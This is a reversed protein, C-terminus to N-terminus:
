TSRATRQTEAFAQAVRLGSVVADEHFANPCYAGCYRTHDVGNNEEWRAQADVAEGRWRPHAYRYGCLSKAPAIAASQN